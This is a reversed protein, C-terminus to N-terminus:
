NLEFTYGDKRAQNMLVEIRSSLDPHDALLDVSREDSPELSRLADLSYILYCPNVHHNRLYAYAYLDAETEQDRSYKATILNNAMNGVTFKTLPNLQELSSKLLQSKYANMAHGLVIHGLEHAMVAMLEEDSLLEMLGSFARVSGNAVAFANVIKNEKYIKFDLPIQSVSQMGQTVRLLRISLPHNESLIDYHSDQEDMLITLLQDSNDNETFIAALIGLVGVPIAKTRPLSFANLPMNMMSMLCLLILRYKAMHM